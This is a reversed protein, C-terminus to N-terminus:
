VGVNSREAIRSSHVDRSRASPHVRRHLNSLPQVVSASSRVPWMEDVLAALPTGRGAGGTKRARVHVSRARPVSWPRIRMRAERPRCGSKQVGSCACPSITLRNRKTRDPQASLAEFVRPCDTSSAPPSTLPGVFPPARWPPMARHAQSSCSPVISSPRRTTRPRSRRALARRSRPCTAARSIWYSKLM